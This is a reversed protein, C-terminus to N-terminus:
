KANEFFKIIDVDGSICRTGDWLFPVGIKDTPLGCANAKEVLINANQKNNFVELKTFKVKDEVKNDLIFKDVNACHSCGDGYFLIVGSIEVRPKSFYSFIKNLSGNTYGFYLFVALVVLVIFGVVLLINKNM